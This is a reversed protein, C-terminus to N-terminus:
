LLADMSNMLAKGLKARKKKTALTTAVKTVIKRMKIRTPSANGVLKSTNLNTSSAKAVM